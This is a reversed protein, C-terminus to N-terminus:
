PQSEMHERIALAKATDAVILLYSFVTVLAAGIVRSGATLDTALITALLAFPAAIAVASTALSTLRLQRELWDVTIHAGGARIQQAYRAKQRSVRSSNALTIYIHSALLNIANM